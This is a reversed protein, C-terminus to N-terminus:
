LDFLTLQKYQEKNKNKYEEKTFLQNIPVKEFLSISFIQLITYLGQELNLRKRIIAVLLYMCVAIWIQTCVANFSTGYFKKIRLHLKIWLFIIRNEM